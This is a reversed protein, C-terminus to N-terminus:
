YDCDATPGVGPSSAPGAGAQCGRCVARQDPHVSAAFQTAAARDRHHCECDGTWRRASVILSPLRVLIMSYRARKRAAPRGTLPSPSVVPVRLMEDPHLAGPPAPRTPPRCALDVREAVWTPRGGGEADAAGAWGVLEGMAFVKRGVGGAGRLVRDHLVAGIKKAPWASARQQACHQGDDRHQASARRCGRCWGGYGGFRRLRGVRGRWRRAWGGDARSGWCCGGWGRWGPLLASRSCM